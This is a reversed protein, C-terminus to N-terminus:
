RRVGYYADYTDAHQRRAFELVDVAHVERSGDANIVIQDVTGNFLIGMDPLTVTLTRGVQLTRDRTRFTATTPAYLSAQITTYADVPVPAPALDRAILIDYPARDVLTAAAVGSGFLFLFSRRTMGRQARQCLRDTAHSEDCFSCTRM